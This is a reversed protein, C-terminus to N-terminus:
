RYPTRWRVLRGTLVGWGALMLLGAVGPWPTYAMPLLWLVPGSDVVVDRDCSVAATGPFYRDVQAGHLALRYLVNWSSFSSELTVTRPSASQPTVSCAVERYHTNSLYVASGSAWEYADDAALPTGATLGALLALLATAALAGGVVLLVRATWREGRRLM